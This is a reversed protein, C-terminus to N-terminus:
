DDQRGSWALALAICINTFSIWYRVGAPIAAARPRNIV